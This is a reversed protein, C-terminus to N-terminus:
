NNKVTWMSDMPPLESGKTVYIRDFRMGSALALIQLEQEGECLETTAVPVWRYIQEAEYRWLCGNKYLEDKELPIGDVGVGFFSEDKVSFKALIWITYEGGSCQIKYNLAPANEVEWTLEPQRIYMALGSRGYSESGCHQWEYKSTYAYKSQSLASAADICIAGNREEFISSGQQLYWNPEVTDAYKEEQKVLDAKVLTDEELQVRAYEVPRPSLTIDGYFEKTWGETDWLKPLLQSGAIGIYNNPKREKTYIVFRSFAFYKDIPYFAITHEGADLEPLQLYLRDVNNLVNKKWNGRWEDTSLTEVVQIEGSDISVGIRIRGVSNLSPFRHIELTAGRNSTLHVKYELVAKIDDGNNDQETLKMKDAEGPEQAVCAEVLNGVGRGLRKIIHFGTGECSVSDADVVIKGDDEMNSYDCFFGNGKVSAGSSLTVDGSSENKLSVVRVPVEVKTGDACNHVEIIGERSQSMDNVQVIIREETCVKGETKSLSVWEPAQIEFSFEGQGLNAIEIWKEAPKVFCIEQEENWVDVLMQPEGIIELPPTCVPMMAARPPPFGEPNVIGNWKEEAMIKNYYVLMKRRADDFEIAKKAYFAAAQMKGKSHMLTSRDGYYYQLNTFYAAHIRMLVMQFFADKEEDPLSNYLANGKEFLEEYKHIRVVAEDGYATQSFADYDMNEVKRVNTLQSFDNLMGAVERGMNGSFTKNIWDEVFADVDDTLANEKGIEWAYRLYFSIEQELPKMAGVNM